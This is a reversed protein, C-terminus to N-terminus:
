SQQRFILTREAYNLPRQDALALWEDAEAPSEICRLYVLGYILALHRQRTRPCRHGQEFRSLEYNQVMINDGIASGPDSLEAPLRIFSLAEALEGQRYSARQRFAFLKEGWAQRVQAKLFVGKGSKAFFHCFFKAKKTLSKTLPRHLLLITCGIARC